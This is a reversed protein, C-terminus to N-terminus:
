LCFVDLCPENWLCFIGPGNWLCLIRPGARASSARKKRSWMQTVLYSQKGGWMQPGPFWSILFQHFVHIRMKYTSDLYFNECKYCKCNQLQLEDLFVFLGIKWGVNTTGSVLKDFIPSLRTKKNQLYFRFLLKWRQLMYLKQTAARRFFGFLGIKWGVNTTGSVLKDFIPSVRTDENQLYFRFLFKWM